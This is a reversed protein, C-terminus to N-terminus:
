ALKDSIAETLFETATGGSIKLREVMRTVAQMATDDCLVVTQVAGKYSFFLFNQDVTDGCQTFVSKVVDMITDTAYREKKAGDLLSEIFSAEKPPVKDPVWYKDFAEQTDFGLLAPLDEIPLETDLSRVLATFKQKNMDGSVINRRVTKLKQTDEDWGTHIVALIESMDLVKAARWRHEGGIIKYHEGDIMDCSCPVLNVPQDFGDEAIESCLHNFTEPTQENPNWENPHIMSLSVRIPENLLVSM